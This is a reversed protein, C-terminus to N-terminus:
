KEYNEHNKHSGSKIMKILYHITFASNVMAEMLTHDFNTIKENKNFIIFSINQEHYNIFNDIKFNLFNVVRDDFAHKSDFESPDSYNERTDSVIGKNKRSDWIPAPSDKPIVIQESKDIASNEDIKYVNGVLNDDKDKTTIFVGQYGMDLVFKAMRDFSDALELQENVSLMMQTIFNRIKSLKYILNKRLTIDDLWVLLNNSLSDAKLHVTFWKGVKPSYWEKAQHGEQYCAKHILGKISSVKQNEFLDSFNDISYKELFGKTSGESAIIDGKENMVFAPDKREMPLRVLLNLNRNGFKVSAKSIGQVIIPVIFPVASYFVGLGQFFNITIGILFAMVYNLPSIFEKGLLRLYIFVTRLQREM